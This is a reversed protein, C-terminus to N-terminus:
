QVRDFICLQVDNYMTADVEAKHTITQLSTSDLMSFLEAHSEFKVHHM